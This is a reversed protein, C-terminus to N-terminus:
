DTKNSSREVMKSLKQMEPIANHTAWESAACDAQTRKGSDAFTVNM